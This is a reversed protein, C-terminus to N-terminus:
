AGGRPLTRKWYYTAEVMTAFSTVTTSTVLEWGDAGLENCKSEVFREVSTGKPLKGAKQAQKFQRHLDTWQVLKYEFKSMVHFRQM